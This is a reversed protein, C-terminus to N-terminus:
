EEEDHEFEYLVDRAVMDERNKADMRRWGEPDNNYNAFSEFMARDFAENMKALEEADRGPSNDATFRPNDYLRAKRNSTLWELHPLL